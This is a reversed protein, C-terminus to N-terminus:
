VACAVLRRTREHRPRAVIEAAPGTEVLRGRHLVGIEGTLRAAAPLDDGLVLLTLDFEERVRALLEVLEARQVDDLGECFGECILLEPNTLLARALVAQQREIEDLEAPFLDGVAEPLGCAIMVAEIRKAREERTARRHWLDLVERFAERITLQPSLAGRADSFVAQIRHRLSRFRLESIGHFPIEAFAIEGEDVPVRKLLALALLHLAERSDGVLGFGRRKEVAFSLGEVLRTGEGRSAGRARRSNRRVLSLNEVRLLEM